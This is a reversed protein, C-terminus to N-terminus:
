QSRCRSLFGATKKAVGLPSYLTALIMPLLAPYALKKQGINLFVIFSDSFDKGTTKM